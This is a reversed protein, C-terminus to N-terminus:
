RRSDGRAAMEPEAFNEVKVARDIRRMLGSLVKGPAPEIYRGKVNSILWRVNHDWRVPSTIQEVLLRKISAVDQGHPGGTVNSLVPLAPPRFAVTELAEGMRDAAPQMLPSHFAGAVTLATARLGM